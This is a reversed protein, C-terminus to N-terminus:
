FQIWSPLDSIYEIDSKVIVKEMGPVRYVVSIETTEERNTNTQTEGQRKIFGIFVFM